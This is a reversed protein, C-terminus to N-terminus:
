NLLKTKLVNTQETMNKAMRHTLEGPRGQGMKSLGCLPVTAHKRRVRLTATNVCRQLIMMGKWNSCIDVIISAGGSITHAKDRRTKDVPVIFRQLLM